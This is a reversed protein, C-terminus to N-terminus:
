RPHYALIKPLIVKIGFTINDHRRCTSISLFLLTKVPNFQTLSTELVTKQNRHGLSGCLRLRVPMVQPVLIKEAQSLLNTVSLRMSFFYAGSDTATALLSDRPLFILNAM